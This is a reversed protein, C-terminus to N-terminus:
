KVRQLFKENELCIEDILETDVVTALLRHGLRRWSFLYDWAGNVM